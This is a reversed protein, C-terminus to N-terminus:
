DGLAFVSLANGAAVAVYQRGDVVYTMPGNAMQGGLSAKWLLEGTRADLAHFHGERSGTFLLNSATTLIGSTTVDTLEFRWRQEGTRPDIALVAGSGAEETWNNIVGRGAAGPLGPAGPNPTGPRGGLFRQGPRYEAEVPGFISGCNEWASVYFLETIPSYSPSYWNTGGGVCPYTVAGPPQPTEIPRGSEDLGSAWNVKVFPNGRIFEGTARDLVYFFGNRNGWLMLKGSSFGRTQLDVLVPVQVSDYDYDDNPTFQFHWKLKGTDADLAVVSDSYLNDGPRQAPNWDPGPNGIGWYTLNLEPDYSGTVWVSAGGHEWADGGGEWTEHGPEGPGPITYFRWVEEGTDAAYAAIFGRIGYEGGAVGVVVKDDVILPALTMAYGLSAEAVEIQWAPQGTTTDIAILQADITAMFLTGGLIAVGRNVRGCCPRSESSTKHEYRWFARGSKADLAVVTNPAETLYMIGDVVLPTTEFKELSQAQFVWQLELDEVNGADIQDLLSYRTSSYNGSYTLWNQPEAATGLLRESTVQADLNQVGLTLPCLMLAVLRRM